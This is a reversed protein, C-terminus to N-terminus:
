PLRGQLISRVKRLIFLPPVWVLPGSSLFSSSTACPRVDSVHCLSVILILFLFIASYESAIFIAHIYSFSSKFVLYFILLFHNIVDPLLLASIMFVFPFIVFALLSSYTFFFCFLFFVVTSLELSLSIFDCM